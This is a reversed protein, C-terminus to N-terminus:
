TTPVNAAANKEYSVVQQLSISEAKAFITKWTKEANIALESEEIGVQEILSPAIAQFIESVLTHEMPAAPQYLTKEGQSEPFLKVIIRAEELQGFLKSVTSFSVHHTDSFEEPSIPKAKTNFRNITEQLILLASAPYSIFFKEGAKTEYLYESHQFHYAIEAGLLIIWWSTQLWILFLPLAAFSGYLTSYSTLYAQFMIFTHQLIYFLTAAILGAILGHMFRVKAAPLFIYLFTFFVWSLIFTTAQIWFTQFGGLMRGLGFNEAYGVIDNLLYLSLSSVFAFFLPAFFIIPSYDRVKAFFSRSSPVKWITNFTDEITGFLMVVSWLLVVVGVGAIVSAKAHRLTSDIFEILKNAIEQHDSLVMKLNSALIDEIGFGKAIGFLVALVPVVSFLTYYTLASAKLFCDDKYFGTLAGLFIRLLKM